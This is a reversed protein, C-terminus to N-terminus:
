RETCRDSGALKEIEDVIREAADPRGLRGASAAMRALTAPELTKELAAALGAADLDKEEIVVAAGNKGAFRANALQHGHTSVALPVLISPISFATVEAITGAGARCIIVDTKEYVRSMDGAFAFVEAEMGLEGYAREVSARDAEGTQHLVRLERGTGALAAPVVENLRRAGQSGGLVLVGPVPDAAPKREAARRALERRIPNGTLATKPGPFHGRSEEFTILIRAAFKSLIRNALGPVSNQECVATPLRALFGCLVTPVSAYGGVGVVADPGFDRIIKASGAVGALISFAAGVKAFLNKGVIGGSSIFEIRHGREPVADKEMGNETGVFLVENTGSRALIEEAISIAPFVHGGTGGGAIIVKM